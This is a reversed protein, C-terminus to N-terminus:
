RDASGSGAPSYPGDARDAFVAGDDRVIVPVCHVTNVAYGGLNWPHETPQSRGTADTARCTLEHDGPTADWTWRWGTWAHEGVPPALDADNWTAGGDASVEVRTIAATGSWARGALEVRGTTVFRQRTLFDPIGPPIILSRVAMRQLPTGEEHPDTRYRYAKAQQFGAFPTDVLEIDTLWKVNTMGYWGPVVLRVPAGHQPPLPRGNLEDALVVEHRTADAVSLSRQYRQEIGHEVGRDAGTFVAEVARDDLGAEDLLSALPTGTWEGTGVAEHLWPQSVARPRLRARGNGACEMTVPLTVRDRRRLDEVSLELPRRVLGGVRLRWADPDLVPIDYHILLYHLGVPTIDHQLAELPMGHNRAALQLEERTLLESDVTGPPPVPAMM